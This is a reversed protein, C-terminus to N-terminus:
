DVDIITKNIPIIYIKGCKVCYRRVVDIGDITDHYDFATPMNCCECRHTHKTDM